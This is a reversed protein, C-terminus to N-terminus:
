LLITVLLYDRPAVLLLRSVTRRLRNIPLWLVESYLPRWVCVSLPVYVFRQRSNFTKMCGHSQHFWTNQANSVLPTHIRLPHSVHCMFISISVHPSLVSLHLRANPLHPNLVSVHLRFHPSVNPLHPSIRLAQRKTPSSQGEPGGYLNSNQKHLNLEDTCCLFLFIIVIFKGKSCVTSM